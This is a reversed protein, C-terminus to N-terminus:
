TPDRVWGPGPVPGLEPSLIRAKRKSKRELSRGMLKTKNQKKGPYQFIFKTSGEAYETNQPKYYIKRGETRYSRLIKLSYNINLLLTESKKRLLDLYQLHIGQSKVVTTESILKLLM